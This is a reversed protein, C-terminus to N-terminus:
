YVKVMAHVYDDLTRISATDLWHNRKKALRSLDLLLTSRPSDFSWGSLPALEYDFRDTPRLVSPSVSLEMAVHEIIERALNRDKVESNCFLECVEDIKLMERGKFRARIGHNSRRQAYFYVAFALVLTVVFAVTEITVYGHM